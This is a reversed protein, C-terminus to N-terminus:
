KKVKKIIHKIAKYCKKIYNRINQKNIIVTKEEGSIFFRDKNYNNDITKQIYDVKEQPNSLQKLKKEIAYFDILNHSDYEYIYKNNNFIQSEDTEKQTYLHVCSNTFYIGTKILKAPNGAFISNSSVRKKTLVSNAGIISGSGINVGKLILSNQGIWVHDGIYTSQSQNIRKKTNCDYILHPDATRIWCGFSFLGDNGIIVNTQESIIIHLASNIYNDKGFYFVSNHHIKVSLFIPFKNKRIYIVSNNGAFNLTSNKLKVGNDDCYLINNEGQFMITSNEIKFNGIIRNNKLEKIDNESKICEM